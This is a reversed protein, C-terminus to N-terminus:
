KKTTCLADNRGTKRNIYAKALAGPQYAGRSV